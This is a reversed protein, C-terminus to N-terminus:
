SFKPRALMSIESKSKNKYMMVFKPRTLIFLKSKLTIEVDFHIRFDGLTKRM